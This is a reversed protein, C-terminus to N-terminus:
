IRALDTNPHNGCTRYDDYYVEMRYKRQIADLGKAFATLYDLSAPKQRQFYSGKTPRFVTQAIGVDHRALVEAEKLGKELAEDETKFGNPTALEVGSVIGTNVANPGFIDAARYLREKWGNYGIYKAKGPCIWNFIDEDLVEIDATYSTLITEDYLRRLQRENYATGILQTLIKKPGFIGELHQLLDIYRDVEDDLLEDGGLISGACFQIMRYRGQQKLAEAVAEAIERSDLFETKVSKTENFTSAITCFRCGLGGLKWFDCNQYINIDVRQPRIVLLQWMPTGNSTAKDFYDPKRWYEVEELVRGDDTLVTKGDVVDVLYPVTGGYLTREEERVRNAIITTGDRLLLGNPTLDKKEASYIGRWLVADQETDVADIARQSFDVGRRQVDIKLIVFPSVDPYKSIVEDLSLERERWNAQIESM